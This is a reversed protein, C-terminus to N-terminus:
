FGLEGPLLIAWRILLLAALVIVGRDLYRGWHETNERRAPAALWFAHRGAQLGAYIMALWGLHHFALSDSLRGHM